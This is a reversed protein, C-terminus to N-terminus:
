WVRPVLRKRGAAFRRYSEGLNVLLAAEEVRIRFLLGLTPVVILVLLSLWNGLILGIGTYALVLGTYSPHRVWRYPGNEVVPQENAVRVVLTFYRGLTSIAWQRIASGVVISALGLGFVVWRIAPTGAAITAGQVGSAIAFGAGVGGGNTVILFPLSLLDVQTVGSNKSGRHRLPGTGARIQVIAFLGIAVWLAVKASPHDYFLPQM